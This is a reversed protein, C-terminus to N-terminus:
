RKRRAKRKGKRLARIKEAMQLAKDKASLGSSLNLAKVPLPAAAAAAAATAVSLPTHMSASCETSLPQTRRISAAREDEKQKKDEELNFVEKKEEKEQEKRKKEEARKEWARQEEWKKEENRKEERRKVSSPDHLFCSPLPIMCFPNQQLFCRSLMRPTM